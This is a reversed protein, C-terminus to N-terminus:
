LHDGVRFPFAVVLAVVVHLDALLQALLVQVRDVHVLVVDDGHGLFHTVGTQCISM